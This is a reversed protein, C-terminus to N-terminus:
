AEATLAANTMPRQPTLVSGRTVGPGRLVQYTAPSSGNLAAPKALMIYGKKELAYLVASVSNNKIGAETALDGYPMTCCAHKDANKAMANLMREQVITLDTIREPTENSVLTKGRGTGDLYVWKALGAQHISRLIAAAEDYRIGYKAMITGSTVGQPYQQLLTPLDNVITRYVNGDPKPALPGPPPPLLKPPQEKREAGFDVATEDGLLDNECTAYSEARDESAFEAICNHWGNYDPHTWFVGWKGNPQRAHWYMGKRADFTM